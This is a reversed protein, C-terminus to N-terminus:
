LTPIRKATYGMVKTGELINSCVNCGVGITVNNGIRVHDIIRSGLGVWVDNGITVSGGICSHATILTRAGITVNHAIHVHDDVKVNDGIITDKLSGRNVTTYSGLEVGNGIVVSGLHPFRLPIENEDREFGFGDFGLVAYPKVVCNSGISVFDGITVGDAIFTNAGIRVGKGLIASQSVTATRDIIESHRDAFGIDEVLYTLLHVFGLRPRLVNLNRDYPLSNQPCVVWGEDSRLDMPKTSFSLCGKGSQTLNTIYLIEEDTKIELPKCLQNKSRLLEALTSIECSRNLSFM